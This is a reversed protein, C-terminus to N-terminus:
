VGGKRALEVYTLVILVIVCLILSWLPLLNTWVAFAVFITLFSLFVPLEQVTIITFLLSLGFVIAIGLIWELGVIDIQWILGM